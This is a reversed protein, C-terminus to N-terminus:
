NIEVVIYEKYGNLLGYYYVKGETENQMSILTRALEFSQTEVSCIKIEDFNKCYENESSFYFFLGFATSFCINVIDLRSFIKLKNKKFEHATRVVSQESLQPIDANEQSFDSSIDFRFKEHNFCYGIGQETTIIDKFGTSSRISKIAMNVSNESVITDPWGAVLLDKRSTPVKNEILLRLIAAEHINLRMLLNGNEFLKRGDFELLLVSM